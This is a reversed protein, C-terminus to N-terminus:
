DTTARIPDHSRGNVLGNWRSFFINQGDLFHELGIFMFDNGLSNHPLKMQELEELMLIDDIEFGYQHGNSSLVEIMNVNGELVHIGIQMFDQFTGLLQFFLM